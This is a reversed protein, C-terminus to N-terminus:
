TTSPTLSELAQKYLLVFGEETMARPNFQGTWQKTADGALEPIAAAKVGAEDLSGLDAIGLLAEVWDILPLDAYGRRTLLEGYHDYTDRAEPDVDNVRMVHPLMIAVAKGHVLGFRATLPNASAHAAGLMSNEIALGSFAAGLLMEGRDELTASDTLVAEISSAIRLFAERSFASSFANRRTCVATELAHALADLATLIAVPQPMSETLEPDLIAFKALAKPDGCAMKEHSGDRSIVAYSQCESGTGATTPVAIFPLMPSRALAYGKYDSMAGGNTLLFNCGKATDMSSGGGLGVICDVEVGRAFEAAAKIDSEGPSEHTADYVTFEIGAESLRSTAREVHGASVIGLDTVILVHSGGIEKVCDALQSLAGPGGVLRPSPRTTFIEM